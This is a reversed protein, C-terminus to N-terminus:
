NITGKTGCNPCQVRAPRIAPAPMKEGCAPCKVHMPVGVNGQHIEQSQYSSSGGPAPQPTSPVPTSPQQAYSPQQQGYSPQQQGYSPQQQGYSPQQQAYSPQQQAYSPQQQGYSPQQPAAPPAAGLNGFPQGLPGPPAGPAQPQGAGPSFGTMDASSVGGAAKNADMTVSGQGKGKVMLVAGVIILVIGAIEPIPFALRKSEVPIFDDTGIDELKIEIAIDTNVIYKNNSLFFATKDQEEESLINKKLSYAYKYGLADATDKDLEESDNIWGYVFWTDGVKLEGKEEKEKYDERYADPTMFPTGAFAILQFLLPLFLIGMVVLILGITSKRSRKEQDM